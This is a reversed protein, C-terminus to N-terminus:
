RFRTRVVAQCSLQQRCNTVSPRLRTGSCELVPSEPIMCIVALVAFLLLADEALVLSPPDVLM